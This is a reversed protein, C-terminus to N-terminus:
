KDDGGESKQLFAPLGMMAAFLILLTPRESHSGVTEHLVGLLGGVFLVVDRRLPWDKM